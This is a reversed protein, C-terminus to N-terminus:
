RSFSAATFRTNSVRNDGYDENLDSRGLFVVRRSESLTGASPRSTLHRLLAALRPLM